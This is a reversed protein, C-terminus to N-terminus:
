RYEEQKKQRCDGGFPHQSSPPVQHSCTTATAASSRTTGRMGRWSNVRGRFRRLDVRDQSASGALSMEEMDAIDNVGFANNKKVCFGLDSSGFGFSIRFVFDSILGLRFGADVDELRPLYGNPNRANHKKRIQNKLKRIQPKAASHSDSKAQHSSSNVLYRCPM